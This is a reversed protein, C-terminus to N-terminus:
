GGGAGEKKSDSEQSTILNFKFVKIGTLTNIVSQVAKYPTDKDAKVVIVYDDVKSNGKVMEDKKFQFQATRAQHIWNALESKNLDVSDIPIGDIMKNRAEPTAAIYQKMKNFPVGFSGINQFKKIDEESLGMTYTSNMTRILKERTHSGSPDLFVKGDKSILIGLTGADPLKVQAQSSPTDVIVSETPKMKATLMFFTLLLFAVDCMATMDLSPSKRAPKHKPM